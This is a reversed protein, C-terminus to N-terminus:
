SGACFNDLLHVLLEIVVKFHSLIGGGNSLVQELIVDKEDLIPWNGMSFGYTHILNLMSLSGIINGIVQFKKLFFVTTVIIDEEIHRGLGSAVSFHDSLIRSKVGM